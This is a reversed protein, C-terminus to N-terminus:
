PCAAVSGAAVDKCLDEVSIWGADVVVDLNDQTIPNPALLISFMDNNEPTTFVIMGPVADMATGGALLIAAEGAATGLLRADKWVSVTQTGLAVRNLAAGDGDQGSVAVVGDLGQAALAAVVGGAMGDNSSLVADVDNNNVTLFQEMNTQAVDPLWNDTYSEGVNIIAGANIADQVIELQGGHVFDANADASNGKIFVYKGEPVLEFVARAQMRGVEVNDFTIYFAAPDEILRDYAIVPIGQAAADAVAPKIATGDQALVILAKAGRAILNEVDALQQEASSGADTSIYTGGGAEIAAVIAPEDWKAWREENYNNWSVGVILEEAAATTTGAATTTTEEADDGCAAAFLAVVGFLVLLKVRLKM